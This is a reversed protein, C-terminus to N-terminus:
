LASEYMGSAYGSSPVLQTVNVYLYCGAAGVSTIALDGVSFAFGDCAPADCCAQRCAEVSPQLSLAGPAHATGVLAGVLDTRPLSRFLAPACYPTVSPTHFPTSSQSPTPTESPIMYNIAADVGTTDHVYNSNDGWDVGFTIVDGIALSATISFPLAATACNIRVLLVSNHFVNLGANHHPTRDIPYVLGVITVIGAM